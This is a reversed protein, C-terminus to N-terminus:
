KKPNSGTSIPESVNTTKPELTDYTYGLKRFDLVDAPTVIYDPPFHPLLSVQDGSGINGPTSQGGDWPWMRDNLNHGYHYGSAPFFASGTHGNDQWQAWLRDLNSHNLWFAPDYSSSPLNNMTGLVKSWNDLTRPNNSDKVVAGGVMAHILNHANWDPTINGGEDQIGWGELLHRLILYDNNSLVRDIYEQPIPYTDFPPVLM